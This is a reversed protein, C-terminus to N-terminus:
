SAHGFASIKGNRGFEKGSASGCQGRADFVGEVWLQTAVSVTGHWGDGNVKDLEDQFFSSRTYSYGGFLEVKPVNHAMAQMSCAVFLALVLVVFKM